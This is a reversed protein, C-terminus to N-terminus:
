LQRRRKSQSAFGKKTLKAYTLPVGVSEGNGCETQTSTACHITRLTLTDIGLSHAGLSAPDLRAIRKGTFFIYEATPNGSADTETLPDASTGYWYLKGNSKKVRKGDGDYAYSVGATSTLQNEANYSYM